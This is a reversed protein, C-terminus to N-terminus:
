DLYQVKVLHMSGHHTAGREHYVKNRGLGCPCNNRPRQPYCTDCFVRGCERCLEAAGIGSDMEDRGIMVGGSRGLALVQIHRGCGGACLTPGSTGGGVLAQLSLGAAILGLLVVAGGPLGEVHSVYAAAVATTALLVATKRKV